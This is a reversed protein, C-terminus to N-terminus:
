ASLRNATVWGILFENCLNIRRMHADLDFGCMGRDACGIYYGGQALLLLEEIGTSRRKLVEAMTADDLVGNIPADDYLTSQLLKVAADSPLALVCQLWIADLPEPLEDCRFDRWHRKLTADDLPQGDDLQRALKFAKAKNSQRM